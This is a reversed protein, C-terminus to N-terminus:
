RTGKERHKLIDDATERVSEATTGTASFVAVQKDHLLLYLCHDDAELDFGAEIQDATLIDFKLKGM